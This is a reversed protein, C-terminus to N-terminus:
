RNKFDRKARALGVMGACDLSQERCLVVTSFQPFPIEQSCYLNFMLTAGMRACTGAKAGVGTKRANAKSNNETTPRQKM